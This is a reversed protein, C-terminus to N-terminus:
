SPTVARWSHELSVFEDARHARGISGTGCTMGPIGAGRLTGAEVGFAALLTRDHSVLRQALTLTAGGEPAHFAPITCIPELRIPVNMCSM